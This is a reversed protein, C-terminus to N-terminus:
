VSMKMIKMKIGFKIFLTLKVTMIAYVAPFMTFTSLHHENHAPLPVNNRLPKINLHMQAHLLSPVYRIVTVTLASTNMGCTPFQQTKNLIKVTQVNKYLVTLKM